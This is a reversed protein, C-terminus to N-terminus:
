FHQVIAKNPKDPLPNLPSPQLVAVIIFALIAVILGFMFINYSNRLLKYKKALVKGETHVDQILSDYILETNDMMKHMDTRYAELSMHYFNGFFLLNVPGSIRKNLRSQHKPLSPRTSLISFCMSILSVSLLLITPPILARNDVLKRLLISIVASLIISNVTILIHAKNDALSSLRQSNNEAIRFMTDIGKEPRSKNDVPKIAIKHEHSVAIPAPNIQNEITKINKDKEEVLSQRCYITYYQHGKLTLLVENLWTERNIEMQHILEDEKRQLEFFNLCIRKGYYYTVADHLIEELLGEPKQPSDKVHIISTIRNIIVEPLENAILFKRVHGVQAEVEKEYVKGTNYFWASVMLIFYDEENLISYGAIKEAAKVIYDTLDSNHFLQQPSNQEIAINRVTKKVKKLLKQYDVSKINTM